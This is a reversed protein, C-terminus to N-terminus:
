FIHIIRKILDELYVKDLNDFASYRDSDIDLVGIVSGNKIIPIVIESRADPDCFIHGPFQNVDDVILTQKREIVSGCIGKGVSIRTCATKGQFPGLVLEGNRRDIFYFGVWSYEEFSNKLVSTINSVNAIFNDEDEILSEIQPILFELKEEKTEVSETIISISM